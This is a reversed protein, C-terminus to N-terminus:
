TSILLTTDLAPPHTHFGQSCLYTNGTCTESLRPSMEWSSEVSCQMRECQGTTHTDAAGSTLWPEALRHHSGPHQQVHSPTDPCHHLGLHKSRHCHQLCAAAPPATPCGAPHACGHLSPAIPLPLPTATPCVISGILVQSVVRPKPHPWPVSSTEMGKICM